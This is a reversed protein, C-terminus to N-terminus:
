QIAVTVGAQSNIKGIALNVPVQPGTVVGAPISANVQLAGAVLGPAAGAYLVQAQVNGITVTVPAVPKPLPDTGTIAGDALGPNMQGAGTAYIVVVSGPQAPRAASNVTGDQNLIAGQGTGSGDLTFIGPSGADVPVSLADSTLGLYEMQVRTSTQGVVSHPVVANVQGSDTYLLPAAVGDFLVRSGALLTAVTASKIDMVAGIAPGVSYGFITVLEGPAVPGEAYDAGNVIAAAAIKTGSPALIINTTVKGAGMTVTVPALVTTTVPSASINFTASTAGAAVSVTAPVSIHNGSALTLTVGGLGAPASLKVTCSAAALAILNGPACVVGSLQLPQIITLISGHGAIAIAGGNLTAGLVNTLGISSVAASTAALSVKVRAVVGDPVTSNNLGWLLCTVRGAQARCSLSKGSSGAAPGAAVDIGAVDTAWYTLTWQAAAVTPQVSTLTLDLSITSGPAGSGSALNLNTGEAFGANAIFFLLLLLRPTIKM